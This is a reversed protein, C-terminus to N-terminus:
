DAVGALDCFESVALDPVKVRTMEDCVKNHWAAREGDNLIARTGPLVAPRSGLLEAAAQIQQPTLM